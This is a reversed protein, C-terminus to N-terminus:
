VVAGPLQKVVAHAGCLYACLRRNQLGAHRLARPGCHCGSQAREGEALEAVSEAIVRDKRSAVLTQAVM